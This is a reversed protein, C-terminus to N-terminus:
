LFFVSIFVSSFDIDVKLYGRVRFEKFMLRLWDLFYSAIPFLFATKSIRKRKIDQICHQSNLLVCLRDNMEDLWDMQMGREFMRKRKWEEVEQSLAPWHPRSSSESPHRKRPTNHGNLYGNLRKTLGGNLIDQIHQVILNIAVLFLFFDLTFM